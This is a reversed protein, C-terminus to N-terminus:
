AVKQIIKSADAAVNQVTGLTGELAGHTIENVDNAAGDLLPKLVPVDKAVQKVVTMAGQATNQVTAGTAGLVYHAANVINNLLTDVLNLQHANVTVAM